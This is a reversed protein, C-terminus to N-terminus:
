LVEEIETIMKKGIVEYSFNDNIYKQLKLGKIEAARQNGFVERMLKAGHLVDVQAWCQEAKYWPSFPMGHVPTLTYDILYSNDEKLYELVGGFGTAIVPKGYAGSTFASLGFGEGRDLSVYCDIRKYLGRMEDESLMNSIFYIKPYNDFVTVAKLRQITIRIAEKEQESYDSRYTKMVLAVDEGQQFAYWYAKLLSVPDKRETWQGIFGFVYTSEAIGSIEYSDIGEVDKLDITHPICCIPITVGSNKFIGVNWECGVMVKDANNNIFPVWDPHLKTTEWITYNVMKKGPEKFKSWFEPTTHVIVVNYDINKNVLSDLIDGDKGLVPKAEEFSIPSLTVDIGQSILAFINSRCAKAYGSNDFIPGVYKIGKISSM